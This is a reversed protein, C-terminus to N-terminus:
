HISLSLTLFFFNHQQSLYAKGREGKKKKKRGGKKRKERKGGRKGNPLPNAHNHPKMVSSHVSDKGKGERRGKKLL